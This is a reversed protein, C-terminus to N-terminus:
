RRKERAKEYLGMLGEYHSEPSFSGEIFLRAKKGMAAIKEPNSWLSLIKARLDPANGPEFTVGTEGELILEPIGGIRSGVVPKGLAYSELIAMPSNDYYVSPIVTFLSRRVEERLREPPLHPHFALNGIGLNRVEEVLRERLPGEGIIQFKVSLGRAAELLTELGKERSLRGFYTIVEPATTDPVGFAELDLFHPLYDVERRFGMERLKGQLFHSPSIFVDVLDYIHLLKHHLYMELTSVLSAPLSGDRCKVALCRYYRGRRCRECVKGDLLLNYTPCAMKYDHLTMVVPLNYKRFSHLISPSIQHYINHLHVLDPKEREILREVCRKAERSYLVRAAAGIKKRLALGNGFVVEPVFFEAYPTDGNRANRMAFFAVAHGKKRLLDATDFFVAESGGRRYFFKNALLIKM